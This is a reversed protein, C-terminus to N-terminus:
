TTVTSRALALRSSAWGSMPEAAMPGFLGPRYGLLRSAAKCLRTQWPQKHAADRPAPRRSACRALAHEHRDDGGAVVVRGQSTGIVSRNTRNTIIRSM